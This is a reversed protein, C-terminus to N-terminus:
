DDKVMGCNVSYKYYENIKRQKAEVKEMSPVFNFNFEENLLGIVGILDNLEMHCREKNSKDIYVEDLGFQQTKLAIQSVEAAEEALKCLLYQLRDM